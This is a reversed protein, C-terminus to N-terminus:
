RTCHNAAAPKCNGMMNCFGNAGTSDVPCTSNNGPTCATTCVQINSMMYFHCNMSMCQTNDTCPDYVAGTCASGSGAGDGPADALAPADAGTHTTSHSTCAAALLVILVIRM